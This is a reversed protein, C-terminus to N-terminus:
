DLPLHDQEQVQATVHVIAYVDCLDDYFGGECICVATLWFSSKFWKM